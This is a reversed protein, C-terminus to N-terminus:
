HFPASSVTSHRKPLDAVVLHPTDTGSAGSSSLGAERIHGYNDYGQIYTGSIKRQSKDYSSLSGSPTETGSAESSSTYPEEYTDLQEKLLAKLKTGPFRSLVANIMIDTKNPAAHIVLTHGDGFKNKLHQPSGICKIQGNVMIAIRSCLADCEGMSHSTLVVSQGNRNAQTICKWALRRTVADMGTTPEDLYLIPPDGLLAVALALKRKTGGSYKHVIVNSFKELGLKDLLERAMLKIQAARFGEQPCYGIDHGFKKDSFSLREGKLFATGGAPRSDGTLMRFTTTKGAGNVGLLGFCEGDPVGFTINNVAVKKPSHLSWGQRYIKSLGQVVLMDDLKGRAQVREREMAVDEDESSVVPTKYLRSGPRLKINPGRVGDLILNLIFFFIGQCGLAILNYGLIDASFPDKYRDVDYREFLKYIFTNSVMDMLGQGLAFQPFVLYAHKCIKYAEWAGRSDRFLQMVLLSIVTSLALFLNTCFSVLYATSGTTFMKSMCYLLPIVSWGYLILITTFAGLNQRIYFGDTQFIAVLAAACGVSIGYILMDWTIAVLWYSLVSIGRLNQLQREKQVKENILYLLFGCPIFSFAIVIILSVGADSADAQLNKVSLPAKGLKIPHNIATIGYESKDKDQYLYPETTKTNFNEENREFTFGGFRKDIFDRFTRFLYSAVNTNEVHQMHDDSATRYEDMTYSLPMMKYNQRANQCTVLEYPKTFNYWASPAVCTSNGLYEDAWSRRCTTGYGIDRDTLVDTFSTSMMNKSSDQYFSYTGPGYISPDLTLAKMDGEDVRLTAVYLAIMLCILPLVVSSVIIRWNRRYHHFRKTLMAGVQRCFLSLGKQRLSNDGSGNSSTEANDYGLNSGNPGYQIKAAPSFLLKEQRFNSGKLAASGHQATVEDRTTVVPNIIGGEEKAQDHRDAKMTLTLFVEELTTDSVGYTDIGLQTRTQTIDLQHFFHDLPMQMNDSDKPLNFTLDTGVHEVLTAKPCMSQIYGVIAQTQEISKDKAAPQSSTSANDYEMATTETKKVILRFDHGINHKLFAPSGCCLLKGQHLLAIRDSLIDAEDLHHTSLLITRGLRNQTILNWINKRGHPDVGSTPEDLIITKSKGVFALAVCLRRKMGYSLENVPTNKAYLLDVDNLLKRAEARNSLSEANEGKMATYFIMHQMVTMYDFLANQQPCIGLSRSGCGPQRGNIMLKGSTPELVGYLMKLTTTKAAGNHGLLSTIQNEYFNVSLNDVANRKSGGYKKTLNQLAIGVSLGHPPAEFLSGSNPEEKPTFSRPIAWKLCSCWYSPLVPFYWPQSLGYKGPKVNRVYWGILFYIGSDVAMMILAWHMSFDRTVETKLNYWQIGNGSEELYALTLTGFSFAATSSLCAARKEWFDMSVDLGILVVYPMYSILYIMLVFLIAMTTRTFFSSVMYLMMVSSFCFELLYLFMIILNSYSFIDTYKLMVAMVLCVVAMMLMTSVLWVLFNLGPIMGIVSLTAEQGNERDYVFNHTAVGLSALFVFTMMVPVLYAGLLFVFNDLHHCPFPMQRIHTGPTDLIENKQLKIIASDLMDQIHIFGRFYRMDEIFNDEASMKWINSKLHNTDMTNDVDMRLKYTIHKPLERDIARKRRSNTSDSENMGMFVIGAFFNKLKSLEFARRELAAENEVFEFRNTEICSTYNAAFEAAKQLADIQSVNFNDSRVADLSSLLSKASIGLSAEILGSVFNNQLADELEEVDQLTDAMAKLNGAKDAWMRSVEYVKAFTEFTANAERIIERVAPTDPTYLIKGRMIPKLYAWLINGLNSNRVSEYVQVCFENPLDKEELAVRDTHSVGDLSAIDPSSVIISGTPFEPEFLRQVDTGCLTPTLASMTFSSATANFVADLFQSGNNKILIDSAIKLNVLGKDITEVLDDLEGTTLNASTLVSSTTHTVYKTVLDGVDLQPTLQDLLSQTQNESLNCVADRITSLPMGTSNLILIRSLVEECTANSASAPQLFVRSSFVANMITQTISESFGLQNTLYANLYPPDKALDKVQIEEILTDKLVDMALIGDLIQRVDEIVRNTESSPHLVKVLSDLINHLKDAMNSLGKGQLLDDIVPVQDKLIDLNVEKILGTMLEIVNEFEVVLDGIQQAIEGIVTVLNNPSNQSLMEIEPLPLSMNMLFRATNLIEQNCIAQSINGVNIPSGQPLRLVQSLNGPSCLLAAMDQAPQNLLTAWDLSVTANFLSNVLSMPLGISNVLYDLTQNGDIFLEELRLWAQETENFAQVIFGIVPVIEENQLLDLIYPTQAIDILQRLFITTSTVSSLMNELQSPARNLCTQLSYLDLGGAGPTMSAVILESLNVYATFPTACDIKSSPSVLSAIIEEIDQLLGMRAIKNVAGTLDYGKDSFFICTLEDLEPILQTIDSLLKMSSMIPAIFRRLALFEQTENVFYVMSNCLGVLSASGQTTQLSNAWNVIPNLYNDASQPDVDTGQLQEATNILSIIAKHVMQWITESPVSKNFHGALLDDLQTLMDSADFLSLLEQFSSDRSYVAHCLSETVATVNIGPPFQLYNEPGNMCVDHWSDSLSIRYVLEPNIATALIEGSSTQGFVNNLLGVVRQSDPLVDELQVMGENGFGNINTEVFNLASSLFLMFQKFTVWEESPPFEREFITLYSFLSNLSSNFMLHKVSDWTTRMNNLGSRDVRQSTVLSTLQELNSMVEIWGLNRDYMDPLEFMNPMVQDMLAMIQNDTLGAAKLSNLMIDADPKVECLASRVNTWPVTKAVNSVTRILWTDNSMFADCISTHLVAFMNLQSKVLVNEIVQYHLKFDVMVELIDFLKDPNDINTLTVGKANLADLVNIMPLIAFTNLNAMLQTAMENQRLPGEIALGALQLMRFIVQPNEGINQLNQLFSRLDLPNGLRTSQTLSRNAMQEVIETISRVNAMFAAYNPAVLPSAWIMAIEPMMAQYNVFDQAKRIISGDVASCIVTALDIVAQSTYNINDQLLDKALGGSQACRAQIQTANAALVSTLKNADLEGNTWMGAISQGLRLYSEILNVLGSSDMLITDFGVAGDKIGLLRQVTLNMLLNATNLTKAMNQYMGSDLVNPLTLQAIDISWTEATELLKLAVNQQVSKLLEQFDQVDLLDNISRSGSMFEEIITEMLTVFQNVEKSVASANVSIQGQEIERMMADLQQKIRYGNAQMMITQWLLVDQDATCVRRQLDELLQKESDPVEIATWLQPGCLITEVDPRQLLEALMSVNVRANAFGDLAHPESLLPNVIRGVETNNMLLQLSLPQDKISMLLSNFNKLYIGIFKLALSPMAGTEGLSTLVSNLITASIAVYDQTFLDEMNYQSNLFEALRSVNVEAFKGLDRGDFTVYNINTINMLLGIIKEINSSFGDLNFQSGSSMANASLASINLSTMLEQAITNFDLACMASLVPGLDVGKRVEFVTMFRAPDCFLESLATENDAISFFHDVTDAKLMISAIGTIPDPKLDLISNVVAVVQPVGRFISALDLQGNQLKVRAILETMVGVIAIPVQLISEIEEMFGGTNGTASNNGLNNNMPIVNQLASFAALMQWIDDTNNVYRDLTAQLQQDSSDIMPPNELLANINDILEFIKELAPTWGNDTNTSDDLAKVLSQLNFSRSLDDFFPNINGTICVSQYLASTNFNDPLSLVNRWKDVACFDRQINDSLFLEAFETSNKIPASLLIQLTNDNLGLVEFLNKLAPISSVANGLTLRAKEMSIINSNIIDLISNLVLGIQRFGNTQLLPALSVMARELQEKLAQTDALSAINADYFGEWYTENMWHPPLFFQPPNNMWLVSIMEVVRDVKGFVQRWDLMESGNLVREVRELDFFNNFGNLFNVFDIGCFAEKFTQLDVSVGRKPAKLYNTPPTNPSCFDTFATQNAFLSQFQTSAASESMIELAGPRQALELIKEMSNWGKFFQVIGFSTMNEITLLKDLIEEGIIGPLTIAMPAQRMAPDRSLQNLVNGIESLSMLPSQALTYNALWTEVRKIATEWVAGSLMRDQLMVGGSQGGLRELLLTVKAVISTLNSKGVLLQGSVINQIAMASQYSTLEDEVITFNLSCFEAVWNKLDFASDPPSTFLKNPDTKCFTELSMLADPLSSTKEAHFINTYIITEFLEPAQNALRVLQQLSPIGNYADVLSTSQIVMSIEDVLVAIMALARDLAFDLDPSIGSLSSFVTTAAQVINEPQSFDAQAGVIWGQIRQGINEWVSDNLFRFDAEMAADPNNYLRGLSTFLINAKLMLATTNIASTDEGAAIKELRGFGQYQTLEASLQNIDVSCLRRIYADVDFSSGPPVSMINSVPTSCLAAFSSLASGWAATQTPQTFVTYVATEIMEPLNKLLGVIISLNPLEKVASPLDTQSEEIRNGLLDLVADVYRLMDESGPTNEVYTIFSLFLRQQELQVFDLPNEATWIWANARSLVQEWVRPSFVRDGPNIGQELRSALREAKELLENLNISGTYPGNLVSNVQQTITYTEIDSVLKTLNLSCFRILFTQLDFTTNPALVLMDIPNNICFSEISDAQAIKSTIKEPHYIATYLVTEFLEPVENLLETLRQMEPLGHLSTNLSNSDMLSIMQDLIINSVGVAKQVIELTDTGLMGLADQLSNAITATIASPSDFRAAAMSTWGDMRQAITTWVSESFLRPFPLLAMPDASPTALVTYYEFIRNLKHGLSSVNVSSAGPGNTLLEILRDSGQYVAMEQSLAELDISCAKALFDAMSFNLGPPVSMISDVPTSCFTPWSQLAFGWKSTKDQQTMVTYLITEVAEPLQETLSLLNNANPYKSNRLGELSDTNAEMIDLIAELYQYLMELGPTNDVVKVFAQFLRQQMVKVFDLPSQSSDWIWTSTRDLIQSWVRPDFVRDGPNIGQDLSRTLEEVKAMLSDVDLSGTYPGNLVNNIQQTVTYTEIGSVLKTLNLSCFQTLFSQFDFTTNPALVLMDHPNNMCFSEISNAQSLKDTIKEPNHITTYLVTEFLEPIQNLLSALLQMEPLGQFSANLSNRDILQIFQGLIIDSVGFAKDVIELVDLALLGFADRFTQTITEIIKAPSDYNSATMDSWVSIRGAIKNWVTENFLASFPLSQMINEPSAFVPLALSYKAVKDMKEIISTVNVSGLTGNTMVETLRDTGQYSAMEAALAEVNLSCANALFNEMSFNLGPPVSMIDDVPTSCFTPWSQLAFGWKSTKDQRTIVTYLITEIAEPAQEMLDLLKNANPYKRLEELSGTSVDLQSVVMDLISDIIMLAPRTSPYRVVATLLMTSLGSQYNTIYRPDNLKQGLDSLSRSLTEWQSAYASMDLWSQDPTILIQPPDQILDEILEMLTQQEVATRVADVRIDDVTFNTSLVNIAEIFERVSAKNNQVEDLIKEFNINVVDCVIYQLESPSMTSANVVFVESFLQLNSCLAEADEATPLRAREPNELIRQLTAFVVASFDPSKQMYNLVNKLEMSWLYESLIITDTSNFYSLEANALKMFHYNIYSNAYLIVAVMDTEGSGFDVFSALNSLRQVIGQIRNTDFYRYTDIAGYLSEWSLNIDTVNFPYLDFPLGAGPFMEAGLMEIYNQFNSALKRWDINMDMGATPDLTLRSIGTLFSDVEPVTVALSQAIQEWDRECIYKELVHMSSDQGLMFYDSLWKTRCDPAAFGLSSLNDLFKEPSLIIARLASVLNPYAKAVLETMTTFEPPFTALISRISSINSSTESLAIQMDLYSSFLEIYVRVMRWEPSPNSGMSRDLSAIVGITVETLGQMGHATDNMFLELVLGIGDGLRNFDISNFYNLYGLTFDMNGVDGSNFMDILRQTYDVMTIWDMEVDYQPSAGPIGISGVLRGIETAMDQIQTVPKAFDLIVQSWNTKCVLDTLNGKPVYSPMSIQSLIDEDCFTLLPDNSNVVKYISEMTTNTMQTVGQIMEPLYGTVMSVASMLPSKITYTQTMSHMVEYTMQVTRSMIHVYPGVDNTLPSGTLVKGFGEYMGLIGRLLYDENFMNMLSEWGAMNPDLGSMVPSQFIGNWKLVDSMYLTISNNFRVVHYYLERLSVKKGWFDGEYLKTFMVVTRNIVDSVAATEASSGLFISLSNMPDETCVINRVDEAVEAPLSEHLDKVVVGCVNTYNATGTFLAAFFDSKQFSNVVVQIVGPGYALFRNLRDQLSDSAQVATYLARRLEVSQETFISGVDLAHQALRSTMAVIDFGSTMSSNLMQELSDLMFVMTREDLSQSNFLQKYINPWDQKSLFELASVLIQGTEDEAMANLDKVLDVMPRMFDKTTGNWNGEGLMVFQSGTRVANQVASWIHNDDAGLSVMVPSLSDVIHRVSALGENLDNFGQMLSPIERILDSIEPVSALEGIARVVSKSSMVLEFMDALERFVLALSSGTFKEKLTEFLNLAEMIKVVDLQGVVADALGPIESRTVNCLANSVEAVTAAESPGSSPLTITNPFDLYLDLKKSDCAIDEFDPSGILKMLQGVNLRSNLLADAESPTFLKFEEVLIRKAEKPDRFYQSVNMFTDLGQTLNQDRIVSNMSDIVQISQNSIDLIDMTEPSSLYPAADQTMASFSRTNRIADDLESNTIYCPNDLNCLYTQLFPVTGASPMARPQYQCNPKRFPPAGQRMLAVMGMVLIPWVLELILIAPYRTRLLINKQFLLLTQRIIKM